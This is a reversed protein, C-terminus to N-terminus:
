RFHRRRLAQWDVPHDDPTPRFTIEVGRAALADLAAVHEPALSISKLVRVSGPGAALNGVTLRSLPLGAKVVALAAQPSKLLLLTRDSAPTALAHAAEQLTYVHLAVGDPTALRLVDRMVPDAASLDDVVCIAQYRLHQRWGVTVQGHILRDDIRAWITPPM